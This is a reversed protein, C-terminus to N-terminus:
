NVGATLRCREPILISKIRNEPNQPKQLKSYNMDYRSPHSQEVKEIFSIFKTSGHLRLVGKPLSPKQSQPAEIQSVPSAL